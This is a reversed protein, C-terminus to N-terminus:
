KVFRFGAMEDGPQPGKAPTVSRNGLARGESQLTAAFHLDTPVREQVPALQVSHIWALQNNAQNVAAALVAEAQTNGTLLLPDRVLMPQSRPAVSVLGHPMATKEAVFTADPNAIPSAPVAAVPQTSAAPVEMSPPQNGRGVFIIAACAAVAAFTGVTYLGHVRKRQAAIAAAAAPNFAIVKKESAGTDGAPETEFDAAIMRCAKQMRCYQEYIRRRAANAQVEAELRAADAGSIEHDLYLNLLQIFETDKM